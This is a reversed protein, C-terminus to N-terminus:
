TGVTHCGDSHTKTISNYDHGGVPEMHQKQRQLNIIGSMTSDISSRSIRDLISNANKRCDIRLSDGFETTDIPRGCIRLRQTNLPLTCHFLKINDSIRETIAAGHGNIDKCFSLVRGDSRSTKSKGHKM